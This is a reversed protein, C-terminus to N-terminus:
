QSDSEDLAEDVLRAVDDDTLVKAADTLRAAVRAQYTQYAALAAVRSQRADLLERLDDPSVMFAVTRGRRTITVPERQAADLLEGFRNQAEVSTLTRM